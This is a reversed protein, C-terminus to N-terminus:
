PKLVQWLRKGFDLPWWLFSIMSDKYLDIEAKVAASTARDRAVDRRRLAAEFFVFNTAFHIASGVLYLKLLLM